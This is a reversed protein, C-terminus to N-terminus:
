IGWVFLLTLFIAFGIAIALNNYNLDGTQLRRFNQCFSFLGKVCRNYFIDFWYAKMFPLTIASPKRFTNIVTAKWKITLIVLLIAVGVTIWITPSTFAHYLLEGLTIHAVPYHSLSYVMGSTYHSMYLWFLATGLALVILPVTMQWPAEHVKVKSRRNGHFTLWYMRWSYAATLFATITLLALAEYFGGEHLHAL